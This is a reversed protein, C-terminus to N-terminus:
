SSPARWSAALALAAGHLVQERHRHLRDLHHAALDNRVDEDPEDLRRDDQEGRRSKAHREEAADDHKRTASSKMAALRVTPM